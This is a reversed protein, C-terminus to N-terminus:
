AFAGKLPAMFTALLLMAKAMLTLILSCQSNRLLDPAAIRAYGLANNFASNIASTKLLFIAQCSIAATVRTATTLRCLNGRTLPVFAACHHLAELSLRVSNATITWGVPPW